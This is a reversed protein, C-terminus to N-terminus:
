RSTSDSRVASPTRWRVTSFRPRCKSTGRSRQASSACRMSCDLVHGQLADTLQTQIALELLQTEVARLLRCREPVDDPAGDVDAARRARFWTLLDDVIGQTDIGAGALGLGGYDSAAGRVVLGFGVERAKPM